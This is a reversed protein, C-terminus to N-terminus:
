GSFKELRSHISASSAAGGGGCIMDLRQAVKPSWHWIDVFATEQATQDNQVNKNKSFLINYNAKSNWPPDLYILDALAPQMEFLSKNWRIWQTLHKLCDGYYCTGTKMETKKTEQTTTM